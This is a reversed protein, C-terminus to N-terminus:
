ITYEHSQSIERISALIRSNLFSLMAKICTSFSNDICEITYATKYADM